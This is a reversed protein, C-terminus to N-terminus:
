ELRSLGDQLRYLKAKAATILPRAAVIGHLLTFFNFVNVSQYSGADGKTYILNLFENRLILKSLLYKCVYTDYM